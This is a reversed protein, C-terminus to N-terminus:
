VFLAKMLISIGALFTIDRSNAMWINHGLFHRELPHKRTSKLSRSCHLLPHKRTQQRAYQNMNNTLETVLDPM